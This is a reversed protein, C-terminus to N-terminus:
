RITDTVEKIVKHFREVFKDYTLNNQYARRAAEGLNYRYNKDLYLTSICEALRVPDEKEVLLGDVKDQLIEAVGGVNTAIIAKGFAMAEILSIPLAEDRSPLIFIDAAALYQKVVDAATDGLVHVNGMREAKKVVQQCFGKELKYLIRGILFCEMQAGIGPPLLELAQLLIDQGKRSEISAIVVIYLRDPDKVFPPQSTQPDPLTIDIGSHIANFRSRDGFENYLAATAKSPFIVRDASRLAIAASPFVRCFNQGFSSEHVWYVYPLNNAKVAHAVRYCLITNVLVLDQHQMYPLAVRADMMLSPLIHVQMGDQLCAEHLPGDFQSLVTIQYGKQVLARCVQWLIIPAGSRSLEHSIVLLRNKGSSQSDPQIIQVDWRAPDVAELDSGHILDFALLIRLITDSIPPEGPQAIAPIRQHPSLNTSFYPDGALIRPYMRVSARLVDAPPLSFGRTAGEHHLLRAFPNYVVRYGADVTRLCLDIDGYGVQYVEDFGNLQEFVQRRMAMCAGTVAQFNRYWESSGFPGYTHEPAGDFAHSGHGALGIVLGAHQITGDPRILKAGVIGVDPREAWGVLEDLWSPTLAETDNNLFVLVDGSAHRAGLNCVKHFNFPSPDSLLKLNSRSALSQYYDHTAPDTSGTDILLIEFDPYSTKDLISDLCTRLVDVKDKTPIIISVKNGSVPWRVHVLGLSPFNVSAQPFGLRNLHAEICRKQAAFAWPKADASSAASGPVQRWHYFVMPLHVIHPHHLLLRLSLDWDQAGDMTPDFQGAAQLLSRRIVSHMLYNTSILLDPSLAQPKFWPSHRQRGDASIKDEDFYLMDAAPDLNLHSVVQYLADPALLDDHDLLLVFEGHAMHLAHNSNNAIGQNQPLHKIKIRQDHRAFKDLTKMVGKLESGGNVLCLEWHPYTQAQVSSLTDSLVAPDPNYVPTLISVLPRYNFAAQNRRQLDLESKGPEHEDIWRQYASLEQSPSAVHPKHSMFTRIWVPFRHLFTRKDSSNALMWALRIDHYLQERRSHAPILWFRIKLLFKRM